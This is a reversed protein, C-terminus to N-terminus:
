PLPTLDSIRVDHDAGFKQGLAKGNVSFEMKSKYRYGNPAIACNQELNRTKIKVITKVKMSRSMEVYFAKTSGDRKSVIINGDIRKLLKKKMKRESKDMDDSHKRILMESLIEPNPRLMAETDTQSVVTYTSLDVDENDHISKCWFDDALEAMETKPNEIEELFETLLKRHGHSSTVIRTRSGAPKSPDVRIEAQVDRSGDSDFESLNVHMTYRYPITAPARTETMGARSQLLYMIDKAQAAPSVILSSAILAPGMILYSKM